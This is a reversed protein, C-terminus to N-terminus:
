WFYDGAFLQNRQAVAVTSGDENVFDDGSPFDSQEKGGAAIIVVSGVKYRFCEFVICASICLICVNILRSNFKVAKYWESRHKVVYREDFIISAKPGHVCRLLRNVFEQYENSRMLKEKTVTETSRIEKQASAVVLWPFFRRSLSAIFPTVCTPNLESDEDSTDEGDGEDEELAQQPIDETRVQPEFKFNLDSQKGDEVVDDDRINSYVPAEWFDDARKRKPM